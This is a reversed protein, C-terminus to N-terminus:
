TLLFVALIGMTIVCITVPLETTIPANPPSSNTGPSVSPEKTSISSTSSSQLIPLPSTSSFTLCESGVSNDNESLRDEMNDAFKCNKCLEDIAEVYLASLNTNRTVVPCAHGTLCINDTCVAMLSGENKVPICVKLKPLHCELQQLETDCRNIDNFPSSSNYVPAVYCPLLDPDFQGYATCAQFSGILIFISQLNCQTM